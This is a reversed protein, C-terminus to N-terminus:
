YFNFIFSQNNGPWLRIIEVGLSGILYGVILCIIVYAAHIEFRAGSKFFREIKLAQLVRFAIVFGGIMLVWFVIYEIM